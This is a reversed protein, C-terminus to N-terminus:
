ILAYDFGGGRLAGPATSRDSNQKGSVEYGVGDIVDTSAGAASPGHCTLCLGDQRTTLQSAGQATYIRLCSACRDTGATRYFVGVGVGVGVARSVHPGNDAQAAGVGGMCILLASGLGVSLLRRV